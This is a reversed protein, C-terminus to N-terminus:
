RPPNFQPWPDKVMPITEFEVNALQGGVRELRRLYMNQVVDRTEPDIRVPGRPSDPNQWNRLLQMTRDGDIRGNQARAVFYIADMADWAGVSYFSPTSNAGYEKKWAEVFARNQPRTAAASYHHMTVIGEPAQTMNPLEEDPTIDGPGILRIGAQPLGLDSYAKMVATAIPGAPVFVFLTDPRADRVRQMFPTFDVNQALPMRVSGVMQGGGETFGRTFAAEGDHGPGYDTVATYARKITPQKAAWQGLPYSSQWLTFSVRALYPSLRITSSTGANMIVVPLKAESALPAVANANPTYILGTLISIRDRTILEQALRRAVDPNPGTDDRRILEIKINGLKGENQKTYLRIAKDMQEAISAGQGSFSLILGVKVTTQALAPVPTACVLAALAAAASSMWSRKFSIAM